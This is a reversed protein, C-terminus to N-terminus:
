PWYQPGWLIHISKISFVRDNFAEWNEQCNLGMVMRNLIMLHIYIYIYNYIMYVRCWNKGSDQSEIQCNWSADFWKNPLIDVSIDSFQRAKFLLIIVKMWIFDQSMWNLSGRVNSHVEVCSLWLFAGATLSWSIGHSHPTMWWSDEPHHTAFVSMFRAVLSFCMANHWFRTGRTFMLIAPLHINMGRFITNIPISGYGCVMVGHYLICLKATDPVDRYSEICFAYSSDYHQWLQVKQKECAHTDSSPPLRYQLHCALWHLYHLSRASM